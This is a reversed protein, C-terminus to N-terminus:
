PSVKTKEESELSAKIRKLGLYLFYLAPACILHDLKGLYYILPLLLSGNESQIMVDWPGTKTVEILRTQEDLFHMLLVDLNWLGMFLAFWMICRWGSNRSIRSERLWYIFAAMSVFFFLHGMQHVVVGENSGHAQIAFLPGPCVATLILVLVTLSVISHPKMPQDREKFTEDKISALPDKHSGMMQSRRTAGPM